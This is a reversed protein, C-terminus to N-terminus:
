RVSINTNATVGQVMATITAVGVANPATYETSFWGDKVFGTSEDLTGVSCILDITVDDHEEGNSNASFVQIIITQNLAITDSSTFISVTSQNTEKPFVQINASGFYGESAATIVTTGTNSPYFVAQAYGNEYTSVDDREFNGGNSSGMQVEVEPMPAGVANFVGIIIPIADGVMPTQSGLKVSVRSNAPIDKVGVWDSSYSRSERSDSCGVFLMLSAFAMFVLVCKCMKGMNKESILLVYYSL